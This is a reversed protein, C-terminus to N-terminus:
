DHFENRVKRLAHEDKNYSRLFAKVSVISSGKLAEHYVGDKSIKKLRWVDDDMSPIIHKRYGTLVFFLYSASQVGTPYELDKFVEFKLDISVKEM